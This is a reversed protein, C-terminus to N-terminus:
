KEGFLWKRLKSELGSERGSSTEVIDAGADGLDRFLDAKIRNGGAWTGNGLSDAAETAYKEFLPVLGVIKEQVDLFEKMDKFRGSLLLLKKPNKRLDDVAALTDARTLLNNAKLFKRVEPIVVQNQVYKWSLEATLMAYVNDRSIFYNFAYNLVKETALDKEKELDDVVVKFSNYELKLSQQRNLLDEQERSYRGLKEYNAAITRRGDYIGTEINEIQALKQEVTNLVPPNTRNPGPLPNIGPLSPRGAVILPSSVVERLPQMNYPSLPENRMRADFEAREKPALLADFIGIVTERTKAARAQSNKAANEIVAVNKEGNAIKPGDAAIADRAKKIRDPADRIYDSLNNNETRLAEVLAALERVQRATQDNRVQNSLFYVDSYLRQVRYDLDIMTAPVGEFNSLDHLGLEKARNLLQIYRDNLANIREREFDRPAPAPSTSPTCGRPDVCVGEPIVQASLSLALAHISFALLAGLFNRLSYFRCIPYRM